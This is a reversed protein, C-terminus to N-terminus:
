TSSAWLVQIMATRLWAGVAAYLESHPESWSAHRFGARRAFGSLRCRLYPETIAWSSGADMELLGWPYDGAAHCPLPCRHESHPSTLLFVACPAVGDLHRYESTSLTVTTVAAVM